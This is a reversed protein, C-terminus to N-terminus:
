RVGGVPVETTQKVAEFAFTTSVDMFRVAEIMRRYFRQYDDMDALLVKLLFDIEGSLRHFEVIADEGACFRELDEFWEADHRNTRLMVYATLSLGVAKPEVLTVTRRITGEDRMRKLRRWVPMASLGVRRGIETTSLSGNRQVERLIKADIADM